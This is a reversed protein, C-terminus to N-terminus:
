QAQDLWRGPAILGLEVLQAWGEYQVSQPSWLDPNQSLADYYDGYLAGNHFHEDRAKEFRARDATGALFKSHLLAGSIEGDGGTRNLWTPL